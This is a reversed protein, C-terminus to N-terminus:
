RIRIGMVHCESPVNTHTLSHSLSPLTVYLSADIVTNEGLDPATYDDQYLDVHLDPAEFDVDNLPGEYLDPANEIIEPPPPSEYLDPPPGEYFDGPGQVSYLSMVNFEYALFSSMSSETSEIANM